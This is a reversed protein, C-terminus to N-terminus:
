LWSTVTDGSWGSSKYPALNWENRLWGREPILAKSFRLKPPSSSAMEPLRAVKNYWPHTVKVYMTMLSLGWDGSIPPSFHINKARLGLFDRNFKYITLIAVLVFVCVSHGPCRTISSRSNEMEVGIEYGGKQWCFKGQVKCIDKRIYAYIQM